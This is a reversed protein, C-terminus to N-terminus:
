ASREPQQRSSGAPNASPGARCARFVVNLPAVRNSRMATAQLARALPSRAQKREHAAICASSMLHM